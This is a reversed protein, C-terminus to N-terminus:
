SGPPLWPPSGAAASAPIVPLFTSLWRAFDASRLVRRMFDAEALCPSLFDQGSPEYGLPCNRDARYFRAAADRLVTRM